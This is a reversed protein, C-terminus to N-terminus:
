RAPCAPWQSLSVLYGEALWPCWLQRPQGTGLGSTPSFLQRPRAPWWLQWGLACSGATIATEVANAVVNAFRMFQSRKHVDVGLLVTSKRVDKPQITTSILDGDGERMFVGVRHEGVVYVGGLVDPAVVVGGIPQPWRVASQWLRELGLPTSLRWGHWGICGSHVCKRVRQSCLTDRRHHCRSWPLKREALFKVDPCLKRLVTLM